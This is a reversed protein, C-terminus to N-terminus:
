CLIVLIITYTPIYDLVLDIYYSHYAPHCGCQIVRTTLNTVQSSCVGKNLINNIPISCITKRFIYIKNSFLNTQPSTLFCVSYGYYLRTFQSRSLGLSSRLPLMFIATIPILQLSPLHILSALSPSLNINTHTFQEPELSNCHLYYFTMDQKYPETLQYINSVM